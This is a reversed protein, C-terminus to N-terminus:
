PPDVDLLRDGCSMGDGVPTGPLLLVLVEAMLVCATAALTSGPTTSM